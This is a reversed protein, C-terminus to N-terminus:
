FFAIFTGRLFGFIKRCNFNNWQMKHASSHTETNLRRNSTDIFQKEISRTRPRFKLKMEVGTCNFNLRKCVRNPWAFWMSHLPNCNVVFFELELCDTPLLAKCNCAFIESIFLCVFFHCPVRRNGLFAVVAYPRYNEIKINLIITSLFRLTISHACM